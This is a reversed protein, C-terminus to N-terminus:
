RQEMRPITEIFDSSRISSFFVSSVSSVVPQSWKIFSIITREFFLASTGFTRPVRRANCSRFVESRFPRVISEIIIVIIIDYSLFVNIGQRM